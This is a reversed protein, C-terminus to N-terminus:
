ADGAVKTDQTEAEGETTSAQKRRKFRRYGLGAVALGALFLSGPEPVATYGVYLDNAITTVYFSGAGAHSFSGYGNTFTGSSWVGREDFQFKSAAAPDAVNTAFKWLYDTSTTPDFNAAQGITISDSLSEILLTIKNSSDANILLAGVNNNILDWETGAGTVGDAAVNKFQFVLTSGGAWTSTGAGTNLFDATGISGIATQINGSTVVTAGASFGGGSSLAFTGGTAGINGGMTLLGGAATIGGSITNNNATNVVVLEGAGQKVIGGNTVRATVVFDAGRLGTSTTTGVGDAVNFTRVANGLDVFGAQAGFLGANDVGAATTTVSNVIGSASPGTGSYAFNTNLNLRGGTVADSSLRLTTALAAGDFLLGDTGPANITISGPLGTTADGLVRNIGTNRVILEGYIDTGAITNDAAGSWTPDVIEVTFGRGSSYTGGDNILNFFKEHRNSGTFNPGDFALTGGANIQITVDDAIQDGDMWNLTGGSNVIVDAVTKSAIGDGRIAGNAVTSGFILTGGNITTAGTYTNVGSLTQTGTGTKTLALVGVVSTGAGTGPVPVITLGDQLTGNFAGNADDNGITLTNTGATATWAGSTFFLPITNVIIGGTTSNLGNIAQNFGGLDLTGPVNLGGIVTNGVITVDGKGAGGPLANTTALKLTGATITTGGSYTNEGGFIQTGAGFKNVALSGSIVGSFNNLGTNTVLAGAAALTYASINAQNNTLAATGGLTLTGGTGIVSGGGALGDIAESQTGLNFTGGSRVVVSSTDLIQDGGTGTIAATALDEIILAAAAAGGSVSHVTATSAKGMNFTGAQVQVSLNLNDTTSSVTLTGLGTKQLIGPVGAIGIMGQATQTVTVTNPVDIASITNFTLGFILNNTATQRLTGGNMLINTAAAAQSGLNQGLASGNAYELIGGNLYLSGTYTNLGALAVTGTGSKVVTTVGTGNLVIASNVTMKNASNNIFILEGAANAATGGATLSGATGAIGITLPGTGSGALITGVTGLRLTGATTGNRVDITRAAADFFTFTNADITGTAALTVDGSTSNDVKVNTVTNSAVTNGTLATYGTYQTLTTGGAAVLDAGNWTAGAVIGNTGANTSNVTIAGGATTTQFNLTGGLGTRTIAAPLNLTLSNSVSINNLVVFNDKGTFQFAAFTQAVNFNNSSISLTGGNGFALNTGTGLTLNTTPLLMNTAVGSNAYDLMLTGGFIQVGTGTTAAVTNQGRLTLTGLGLKSFVGTGGGSIIGPIELTSNGVVPGGAVNIAWAANAAVAINRNNSLIITSNAGPQVQLTSTTALTLNTAPAVPVAGLSRDSDIVLTTLAAVSTAAMSKNVAGAPTTLLNFIGTNFTVTPTGSVAKIDGLFTANNGARAFLSPSTVVNLTGLFTFAGPNAIGDNTTNGTVVFNGTVTTQINNSLTHDGNLSGIFDTTSTVRILGTGLAADNGIGINTQSGTFPSIGGTFDNSNTFYFTGINFSASNAGTLVNQKTLVLLNTNRQVASAAAGLGGKSAETPSGFKYTTGNAIISGGYYIPTGGVNSYAGLTINALAANSMDIVASASTNSTDLMVSGGASAGNIRDLLPQIDTAGVLAVGTTAALLVNRSGAAGLISSVGDFLLYGGSVVIPSGALAGTANDGTLMLVGAGTKTLGGTAATTSLDGSLIADVGGTGAASFGDSVDVTRAAAGLQIDNQFDIIGTSGLSNGASQALDLINGTPVFGGSGWTVQAGSGGLNVIRTGTGGNSFGGNGTFQVQDFGTGLSRYFDGSAATLELVARTVGTAAFVLNGGGTNTTTLTTGGLGGPLALASNLQLIGRNITTTGTYTNNGSLQVVSTDAAGTFVLSTPGGNDGIGFLLNQRRDILVGGITLTRAGLGAFLMSDGAIGITQNGAGTINFTGGGLGLTFTKALAATSTWTLAGGNLTFGTTAGYRAQADMALTGGNIVIQGTITNTATGLTLTGAGSKTISGAVITSSFTLLDTALDTRVVLEGTGTPGARLTGTLISAANGGAKLLGGSTITLTNSAAITLNFAGAIRLSNITDTTQASIIGTQNIDRGTNAGLTVGAASTATNTDTGYVIARVFGGADYAAYNNGGFYLGADLFQGAAPPSAFKVQNLAATSGAGAVTFNGTAGSTRAFSDFTLTTDQAATRQSLITGDGAAFSLAGLTQSIAGLAGVNDFRFTGPGAFTLGSTTSLSGTAGNLQLTGASVRTTGTYTNAGSLTLTGLGIKALGGDSLGSTGTNSNGIGAAFAVSQGNTDIVAGGAITARASIDSNNGAYRFIGGDFIISGAPTTPNGLQNIDSVVLTGGALTTTGTYNQNATFEVTSNGGFLGAGSNYSGNDGIIVNNAGTVVNETAIQLYGGSGGTTATGLAAWPAGGGFRYTNLAGAALTTGSYRRAGVAGLYMDSGNFGTVGTNNFNLAVVGHSAATIGVSSFDDTPSSLTILGGTTILSFNAGATFGQDDILGGTNFVATNLVATSTLRLVGGTITLTPRTPDNPGSGTGTWGSLDGSLVLIGGGSKVLNINNEFLGPGGILGDYTDTFGTGINLTLVSNGAPNGGNDAGGVVSNATGTGSTVLIGSATTQNFTQSVPGGAGGLALKGSTTGSGLTVVYAASGSTALRNNGGALALVGERVTVPGAFTNAGTLTQTGSGGKAIGGAGSIVGSFTANLNNTSGMTLVFGSGVTVSGTNLSTTTNSLAGITQTAGVNFLAGDAVDVTALTGLATANNSNLTGASINFRTGDVISTAATALTMTALGSKTITRAAGGDNLAGLTLLTAGGGVPNAINFTADGSFTTAGFILGATGSTVNGGNVSLTNGGISLAGFTYNVGVGAVSKESIITADGTVTTARNFALLASHRLDLTGGALTLTSAGTGLVNASGSAALTGANITVGSTFTNAATLTLQSTASNQFVGTVNTGIVNSFTVVGTGSGSNTISGIPNMAGTQFTINGSGDADAILNGTGSVASSVTFLAAGASSITTGASNVTLAGSVTFASTDSAQRLGTVNTGVPASITTTGTGLGTNTVTGANNVAGTALTITGTTANNNITLNNAGTVGGSFTTSVATGTNGITLTGTTTSALVIQTPIILGTTGVLLTAAASGGASDGLTVVNAAPGFAAANVLGLVTGSKITLGSTFANIGSLTLQSTASNQIVGSVDTDIASSIVVGGTGTGANTMVGQGGIGGSVTLTNGSNNAWTQSAGLVLPASISLSGAGPNLKIGTITDGSTSNTPNITLIGGGSGISVNSTAAADMTLSAIAFNQGLTTNLNTAGTAYFHVDTTSGPLANTNTTGAADTTWNSTNGSFATWDGSM